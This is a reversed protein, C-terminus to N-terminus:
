PSVRSCWEYASVVHAEYENFFSDKIERMLISDLPVHLFARLRGAKELSPRGSWDVFVKLFVNLPKQPQGYSVDEGRNTKLERKILDILKGHFNDFEDQNEVGELGALNEVMLRVFKDVGDKELVRGISPNYTAMALGELIAQNEREKLETILDMSEGYM